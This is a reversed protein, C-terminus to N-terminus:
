RGHQPCTPNVDLAGGTIVGCRCLRGPNFVPVFADDDLDKSAISNLWESTIGSRPTELGRLHDAAAELEGKDLQRLRDESPWNLLGLVALLRRAERVEHILAPAYGFVKLTTTMADPHLLAAVAGGELNKISCSGRVVAQVERELEDLEIETLKDM